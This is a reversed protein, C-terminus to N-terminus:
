RHRGVLRAMWMAGLADLGVGSILCAWGAPSGLLMSWLRPEVAGVVFTFVVPAVVLLAASARAQSSLAVVERELAVRDRLSEAVGDLVAAGSGGAEASVELAVAALRRNPSPDRARWRAVAPALRRGAAIDAALSALLHDGVGVGVIADSLNSGSRLRRVIRDLREPVERDLARRRRDHAVRVVPARLVTPVRRLVPQLPTLATRLPQPTTPRPTAMSDTLPLADALRRRARLNARMTPTSRVTEVLAVVAIAPVLATWLMTM